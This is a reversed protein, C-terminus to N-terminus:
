QSRPPLPPKLTGGPSAVNKCATSCPETRIAEATIIGFVVGRNYYISGMRSKDELNGKKKAYVNKDIEQIM